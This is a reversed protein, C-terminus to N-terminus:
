VSGFAAWDTLKGNEQLITNPCEHGEYFQERIMM